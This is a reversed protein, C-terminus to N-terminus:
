VSGREFYKKIESSVKEVVDAMSDQAKKRLVATKKEAEKMISDADKKAHEVLAHRKVEAEQRAKKLAEDKLKQIEESAEQIVRGSEREKAELVIHRAKEETEKVKQIAELAENKIMQDNM